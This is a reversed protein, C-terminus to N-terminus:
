LCAACCLLLWSGLGGLFGGAGSVGQTRGLALPEGVELDWMVLGSAPKVGASALWAGDPSFALAGVGAGHQCLARQLRGSGLDWVCVAAAAAASTDPPGLGPSARRPAATAGASALLRGDPSLALATVPGAHHQLLRQRGPPQTEQLVVVNGAAFVLRGGPRDWLVFRAAAAGFGV